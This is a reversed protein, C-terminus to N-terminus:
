IQICKRLVDHFHQLYKAISILSAQFFDCHGPNIYIDNRASHRLGIDNTKYISRTLRKGYPKFRLGASIVEVVKMQRSMDVSGATAIARIAAKM